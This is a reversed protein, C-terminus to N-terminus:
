WCGGMRTTLNVQVNATLTVSNEDGVTFMWQQGKGAEEEGARVQLAVPQGGRGTGAGAGAGYFDTM